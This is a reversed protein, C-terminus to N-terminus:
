TVHPLNGWNPASPLRASGTPAFEAAGLIKIKIPHHQSVTEAVACLPAQPARGSLGDAESVVETSRMRRIGRRADDSRWANAQESSTTTIMGRVLPKKGPVNADRRCRTPLRGRDTIRRGSAGASAQLETTGAETVARPPHRPQGTFLYTRCRSGEHLHRRARRRRPHGRADRCRSRHGGLDNDHHWRPDPRRFRLRRGAGGACVLSSTSLVPKASTQTRPPRAAHVRPTRM